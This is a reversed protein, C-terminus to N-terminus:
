KGGVMNGTSGVLKGGLAAGLPGGLAGGAATGLGSFLSSLLQGQQAQQQSQLSANTTNVGIDQGRGSLSAQIATNASPTPSQFALPSIGIGPFLTQLFPIASQMANLRQSEVGGLLQQQGQQGIQQQAQGLQLANMRNREDRDIDEAAFRQGLEQRGVDERRQARGGFLGGGLNASTRVDRQLRDLERQRIAEQASQQEGTIGTPSQVQGLISQQLAQQLAAQQPFLGEQGTQMQGALQLQQQVLSGPDQLGGLINQALADKVASEQGFTERRAAEEVQLKQPLFQKFIDFESQAAQPAFELNAKVQERAIDSASAAKPPAAVQPTSEKSGM